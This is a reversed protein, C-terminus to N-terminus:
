FNLANLIGSRTDQLKFLSFFDKFFEKKSKDKIKSDIYDPYSLLNLFNLIYPIVSAIFIISYKGTYFVLGAAILANFASGIQSFSRTKGYYETKKDLSNNKELYTLILAKHTGSRFAEGLAFVIMAIIM